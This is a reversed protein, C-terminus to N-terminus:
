FKLIKEWNKLDKKKGELETNNKKSVENESVESSTSIQGELAKNKALAETWNDSFMNIKLVHICKFFNLRVLKSKRNYEKVM